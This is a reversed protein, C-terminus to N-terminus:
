TSAKGSEGLAYMVARKADTAISNIWNRSIPIQFEDSCIFRYPISNQLGLEEMRPLLLKLAPANYLKDSIGKRDDPVYQAAILEWVDEENEIMNSVISEYKADLKGGMVKETYIYHLVEARSASGCAFCFEKCAAADSVLRDVIVKNAMAKKVTDEPYKRRILLNTCESPAFSFYDDSILSRNRLVTQWDMEKKNMEYICNLLDSKKLKPFKKFIWPMYILFAMCHSAVFEDSMGSCMSIAKRVIMHCDLLCRRQTMAYVAEQSIKLGSNIPIPRILMGYDGWPAAGPEYRIIKELYAVSIKYLKKKTERSSIRNLKLEQHLILEAIEDDTLTNSM